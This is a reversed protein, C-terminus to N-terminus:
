TLLTQELARHWGMSGLCLQEFGWHQKVGSQGQLASPPTDGGLRPPTSCPEGCCSGTPHRGRQSSTALSMDGPASAATSCLHSPSTFDPHQHKGKCHNIPLVAM